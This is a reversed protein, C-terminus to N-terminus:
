KSITDKCIYNTLIPNAQVVTSELDLIVSTRILFPSPVCFCVCLFSPRTVISASVPPTCHLDLFALSQQCSGFSSLLLLPDEGPVKLPLMAKCVGQNQVILKLITLCYQQKLGGVKHCNTAAAICIFVHNCLFEGNWLLHESGQENSAGVRIISVLDGLAFHEHIQKKWSVSLVRSLSLKKDTEMVLFSCVKSLHQM